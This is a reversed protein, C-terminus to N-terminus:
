PKAEVRDWEEWEIELAESTEYRRASTIPRTLQQRSIIKYEWGPNVLLLDGDIAILEASTEIDPFGEPTYFVVRPPFTEVQVPATLLNQM